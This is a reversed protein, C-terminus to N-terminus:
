GRSFMQTLWLDGNANSVIGIGIRTADPLVINAYHGASQMLSTHGEDVERQGLRRPSGWSRYINEAVLAPTTGTAARYRDLPEALARTPSEHAFYKKDRMEASHARAINALRSDTTLPQLKRARRETNVKDVMYAELTALRADSQALLAANNLIASGKAVNAVSAEAAPLPAGAPWAAALSSQASIPALLPAASKGSREALWALLLNIEPTDGTKQRAQELLVRAELNHGQSLQDLATQWYILASSADQPSLVPATPPAAVPATFAPSLNCVGLFVAAAASAYPSKM